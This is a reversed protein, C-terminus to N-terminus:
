RLEFLDFVHRDCNRGPHAYIYLLEFSFHQLDRCSFLDVCRDCLMQDYFQVGFLSRKDKRQALLCRIPSMLIHMARRMLQALCRIACCITCCITYRIACRIMTRHQM